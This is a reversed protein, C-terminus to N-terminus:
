YIVVKDDTGFSTMENHDRSIVSSQVLRAAKPHDHIAPKVVEDIIPKDPQKNSINKVKKQIPKFLFPIDERIIGIATKVVDIFVALFFVLMIILILHDM